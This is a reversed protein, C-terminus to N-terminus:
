RRRNPLASDRDFVMQCQPLAARLDQLGKETVLTHYLNLAKLNKMAKLTDMGADSVGTADLSLERLHPLSKLAELAQNDVATYALIM